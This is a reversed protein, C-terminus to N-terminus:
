RIHQMRKHMGNHQNSFYGYGALFNKRRFDYVKDGLETTPDRRLDIPSGLFGGLKTPDRRLDFYVM